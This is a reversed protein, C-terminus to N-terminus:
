RRLQYERLRSYATKIERSERRREKKFGHLLIFTNSATEHYLAIRYNSYKLEYFGGGYGKIPKMMSTDLLILGNQQLRVIKDTINRHINEDLDDLWEAVPQRGSPETYYDIHWMSTNYGWLYYKDLPTAQLPALREKRIKEWGGGEAANKEQGTTKGQWGTEGKSFPPSLPIETNLIGRLRGKRFPSTRRTRSTAQPSLFVLPPSTVTYVPPPPPHEPPYGEFGIGKSM